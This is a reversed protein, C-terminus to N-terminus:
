EKVEELKRYIVGSETLKRLKENAVATVLIDGDPVVVVDGKEKLGKLEISIEQHRRLGYHDILDKYKPYYELELIFELLEKAEM